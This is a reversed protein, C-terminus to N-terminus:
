PPSSTSAKTQRKVKMIGTFADWIEGLDFNSKGRDRNVFVTSVESFTFGAKHLQYAIASLVIFGKSQIASRDIARAADKSYLRYGNTYDHIPIGLLTKAYFNACRSFARRGLPWNVIRSAKLYRSGIVVDTKSAAALLKPIEHPDHSFDADMEMIRDYTNRELAWQIGDLVAGGRGDKKDRVMLNVRDNQGCISRVIDATGDPSNDDVVLIDIDEYTDLIFDVLRNITRSENYCPIVVLLKSTM